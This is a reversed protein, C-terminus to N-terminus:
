CGCCVPTNGLCVCCCCGAKMMATMCDCCAQIMDCCPKDGSTCTIKVGSETMECKCHAMLMNCCCAMMGNMTMCCCCAGGALMTCLSQLMGAAMADDCVCDITMGGTCKAMKITCRPVMMMGSAAPMGTPAGMGMGMAGGMAPTSMGSMGMMGPRDVMMTAM